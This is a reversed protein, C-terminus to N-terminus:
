KGYGALGQRLGTKSTIPKSLDYDAAIEPPIKSPTTQPASGNVQGNSETTGANSNEEPQETLPIIPMGPQADAM